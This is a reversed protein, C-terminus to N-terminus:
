RRSRKETSLITIGHDDRMLQEFSAREKTNLRQDTYRVVFRDDSAADFVLGVRKGRYLVKIGRINAIETLIDGIAQSFHNVAQRISRDDSLVLKSAGDLPSAKLTIEVFELADAQGTALLKLLRRLQAGHVEEYENAYECATGFYAGALCNAIELPVTPSASSIRVRRANQSFDLIIWEPQFGHEVGVTKVILGPREARRIFLLPRGDDVVIDRFESLRQDNKDHDFLTLLSRIRDPTLFEAFTTEPQKVPTTLALRAFGTKQIKELHFVKRLDTPNNGYLAFLLAKTDHDEDNIRCDNVLTPPLRKRAFDVVAVRSKMHAFRDVLWFPVLQGNVGRLTERRERVRNEVPLDLAACVMEMQRGNLQGIWENRTEDREISPLLLGLGMELDNEWFEPPPANVRALTEAINSM